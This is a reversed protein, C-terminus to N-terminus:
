QSISWKRGKTHEGGNRPGAVASFGPFGAMLGLMQATGSAPFGPFRCLGQFQGWFGLDLIRSCRGVVKFIWANRSVANTISRNNHFRGNETKTPEKGKPTGAVASFGPFGAMLGLM